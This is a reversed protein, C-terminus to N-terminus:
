LRYQGDPKEAYDASSNGLDLVVDKDSDTTGPDTDTNSRPASLGSVIVTGPCRGSSQSDQTSYGLDVFASTNTMRDRLHTRSILTDFIAQAYVTGSTIDFVRYVLINQVWFWAVLSSIAWITALGGTQIVNRVLNKVLMDSRKVGSRSKLLARALFFTILCEATAQSSYWVVSTAYGFSQSTTAWASTVNTVIGFVFAIISFAIPTLCRIRSKTLGYIRYTLFVNTLLVIVIQCLSNVPGSWLSASTPTEGFYRIFIIYMLHCMLISQFTVLFFQIIVFLKMRLPDKFGSTWYTYFQQAVLGVLLIDLFTAYLVLARNTEEIGPPCPLITM